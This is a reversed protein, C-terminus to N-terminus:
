PHTSKVLENGWPFSLNILRTKVIRRDHKPRRSYTRRPLVLLALARFLLVLFNGAIARLILMLNFGMGALLAHNTDGVRGKLYNRGLRHERKL